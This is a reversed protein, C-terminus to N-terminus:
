RGSRKHIGSGVRVVVEAIAEAAVRNGKVSPHTFDGRQVRMENYDFQRYKDLLSVNELGNSNCLEIILNNIDRWKYEQFNYILPFIPVVIKIGKEEQYRRIQDFTTRLYDEKAEDAYLRHYYDSEVQRYFHNRDEWNVRQLFDEVTTAATLVLASRKLLSKWACPFPLRVLQISCATEYNRGPIRRSEFEVDNVAYDIVILDPHYAAAYQEVLHLKQRLSLGPMSYNIVEAHQQPLAETLRTELLKPYSESMRVNTGFGISDSAVFIRVSNKGREYGYVRDRFGRENIGYVIDNTYFSSKPRFRWNLVPDEVLVTEEIQFSVEGRYGLLRLGIEAAGASFTLAWLFIGVKALVLQAKRMGDAIKESQINETNSQLPDM